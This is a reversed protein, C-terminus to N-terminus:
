ILRSIRMKRGQIEVHQTKSLLLLVDIDEGVDPHLMRYFSLMNKASFGNCLLADINMIGQETCMQGRQAYFIIQDYLMRLVSAKATEITAKLQIKKKREAESEKRMAEIQKGLSSLSEKHRLTQDNLHHSLSQLQSEIATECELIESSCTQMIVNLKGATVEEQQVLERHSRSVEEILRQKEALDRKLCCITEKLSDTEGRAERLARSRVVTEFGNEADVLMSPNIVSRTPLIGKATADEGRAGQATSSDIVGQTPLFDKGFEEEGRHRKTDEASGEEASGEEASGEEASGEEATGEEARGEEARGEEARGELCPGCSSSADSPCMGAVPQETKKKKKRKEKKDKKNQLKRLRQGKELEEDEILEQQLREKMLISGQEVALRQEEFSDDGKEKQTMQHGDGADHGQGLRLCSALKEEMQLGTVGKIKNLFVLREVEKTQSCRHMLKMQMLLPDELLSGVEIIIGGKEILLVDCCSDMFYVRTEQTAELFLKVGDRLSEVGAVWAYLYSMNEAIYSAYAHTFCSIFDQLTRKRIYETSDDSLSEWSQMILGSYYSTVQTPFIGDECKLFHLALVLQRELFRLPSLPENASFMDQVRSRIVFDEGREEFVVTALSADEQCGLFLLRFKTIYSMKAVLFIEISWFASVIIKRREIAEVGDIFILAQERPSYFVDEIASFGEKFAIIDMMNAAFCAVSGELIFEEMKQLSLLFLPFENVYFYSKGDVILHVGCSNTEDKTCSVSQLVDAERIRITAHTEWDGISQREDRCLCANPMPSEDKYLYLLESKSHFLVKRTSASLAKRFPRLCDRSCEFLYDKDPWYYKAFVVIEMAIRLQLAVYAEAKVPIVRHAAFFSTERSSSLKVAYREGDWEEEVIGIPTTCAGDDSNSLIVVPEGKSIAVM